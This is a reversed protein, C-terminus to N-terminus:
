SFGYFPLLYGRFLFPDWLALHHSEQQKEWDTGHIPSSLLAAIVGRSGLDERMVGDSAACRISSVVPTWWREQLRRPYRAKGVPKIINDAEIVAAEPRIITVEIHFPPGRTVAPRVARGSSTLAESNGWPTCIKSVTNAELINIYTCMHTSLSSPVIDQSFIGYFNEISRNNLIDTYKKITSCSKRSNLM